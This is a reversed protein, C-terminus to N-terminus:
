STMPAVRDLAGIRYEKLLANSVDSAPIVERLHVSVELSLDLHADCLPMLRERRLVGVVAPERLDEVGRRWFCIPCVLRVEQPYGWRARFGLAHEVVIGWLAVTGIVAPDRTRKLLEPERAAHLGCTCGLSPAQHFRRKGCVARAPQMPLWPRPNGAVPRLRPAEIPGSLAWTRWGTVVGAVLPDERSM